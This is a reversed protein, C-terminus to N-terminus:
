ELIRTKIENVIIMSIMNMLETCKQPNNIYFDEPDFPNSLHEETLDIIRKSYADLQNWNSELRLVCIKDYVAKNGITKNLNSPVYIYNIMSYVYPILIPNYEKKKDKDAKYGKSKSLIFHEQRVTSDNNLHNVFTEKNRISFKNKTYSYKYENYITAISRAIHDNVYNRGWAVFKKSFKFILSKDELKQIFDSYIKEIMNESSAISYPNSTKKDYLLTFTINFLHIAYVIELNFTKKNIFNDKFYRMIFIKPVMDTNLLTFQLLKYQIQKEVDDIKILKDIRSIFSNSISRSEAIESLFGLYEDIDTLAKKIISQELIELIHTGACFRTFKNKIKFDNSLENISHYEDQKLIFVHFYHHFIDMLSLNSQYKDLYVRLGFYKHKIKGWMNLAYDDQIRKIIFSKFTDEIDLNVSKINVDLFYDIAKWNNSESLILINLQSNKFNFWFVKVDYISSLSKYTIEYLEKFTSIQSLLDNSKLQDARMSDFNNLDFNYKLLFDYDHLSQNIISLVKRESIIKMKSLVSTILSICSLRQQGDIIAYSRTSKNYSLLITGLFKPGESIDNILTNLLKEGWRIERQYDPIVYVRNKELVSESGIRFRKDACILSELTSVGGAQALMLIGGFFIM